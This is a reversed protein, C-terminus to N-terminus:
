RRGEVTEEVRMTFGLAEVSFWLCHRYYGCELRGWQQDFSTGPPLAERHPGAASLSALPAQWVRRPRGAPSECIYDKVAREFLDYVHERDLGDMAMSTEDHLWELWLEALCGRGADGGTGHGESRLRASRAGCGSADACVPKTQRM